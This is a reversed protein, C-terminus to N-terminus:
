MKLSDKKENKIWEGRFYNRPAKMQSAKLEINGKRWEGLM